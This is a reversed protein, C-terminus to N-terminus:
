YNTDISSSRLMKFFVPIYLILTAIMDVACIGILINAIQLPIEPFLLLLFFVFYLLATCVKGFWMAGDLKKGKRLSILGMIGMFGEKIIFIAVLLWMWSFRSALCFVMAGQTLKDALPDLFKGLETIQNFKRAIKGDLLDTIGSLAIIAAAWYFGKVNQASFYVIVFVPILIMRFYCLLNPITLADYRKKMDQGREQRM